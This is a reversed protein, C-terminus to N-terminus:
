IQGFMNDPRHTKLLFRDKNRTRPSERDKKDRSWSTSSERLRVDNMLFLWVPDQISICTIISVALIVFSCNTFFSHCCYDPQRGVIANLWLVTLTHFRTPFLVYTFSSSACIASAILCPPNPPLYEIHDTSYRWNRGLCFRRVAWVWLSMVWSWRVIGFLLPLPQFTNSVQIFLRIITVYRVTHKGTHTKHVFHLPCHPRETRMNRCLQDVSVPM